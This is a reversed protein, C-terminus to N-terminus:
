PTAERSAPSPTATTPTGFVMSLSRDAVSSVKPKSVATCTHTSAMSRRCVVASDWSRAMTTSTMPRWAPWMAVQAAMAPPAVIHRTGSIRKSMSSTHSTM